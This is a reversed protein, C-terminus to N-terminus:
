KALVVKVSCARGSATLRVLYIGAGAPEGRENRGDWDARHRGAERAGAALTRVLRGRLDYVRLAASGAQALDFWVTTRPNFPNPVVAAIGFARPPPGDPAGTLDPEVPSSYGGAHGAADVAAILYYSRAPPGTDECEAAPHAVTAVVKAPSPVFVAATDRYVVYSAVDPEANPSWSVRWRGGGLPEVAAGVVAAPAAFDALPGGRLGIDARSGDPDAGAPDPDGRDIAPSHLGLGYDGNVPDVFVPDGAVDHAGAALGCYDGGTNGFVLNYDATLAGGGGGLGCGLNAVVANNRATFAGSANLFLGAGFLGANATVLGHELLGGTLGMLRLGGGLGAAQNADVHVNRLTAAGGEVALGGGGTAGARNGQLRGGTWALSGDRALVGGGQEVARNNRCVVGTATLTAGVAAIAGGEYAGGNGTFVDGALSAGGGQVYLGGGLHGATSDSGANATFVNGALVAAATGVLAVAGGSAARNGTFVCQEIRPSGGHAMVAGGLGYGTGPDARCNEFRCARIVPSAAVSLVGGGHRGPAPQDYNGGECDHFTFGDVLGFDGSGDRFRLGSNFGRLRTPTAAPDRATFAANWGGLLRVTTNVAVSELYEGGAVLVTDRGTCALVADAIAHAATAPSEYPPTNSGAASVYRTRHGVIHLPESNFAFGALPGTAACVVIQGSTSGLNPVTWLFSGTNPADNALQTEFCRDYASFWVDVTAASGQITEWSIAVTQGAILEQSGLPGTVRFRIAPATYDIQSCGSGIGAAGYKIYFYGSLGFDPGWSNKCIWAGQGGCMRDDWGVIMVMHNTYETGGEYCGGGYYELGDGDVTSAVPGALLATKIQGVDNAIYRWGTIKAFPLYSTQNCPDNQHAGGDYPLCPELVGGYDRLVRYAADAWGGDCGSGWPNCQMIQSESLDLEQGYYIKVFSEAVGACAFAWCAGCQGQDKVPTVGSQTRWDFASPLDAPVDLWAAKDQAAEVLGPPPAYGGILRARQEPTLTRVFADTATWQWGNAEILAQMEALTREGPRAAAPGAPGSLLSLAVLLAPALSVAFPRFRPQSPMALRELLAFGRHILLTAFERGRGLAGPLSRARRPAGSDRLAPLDADIM